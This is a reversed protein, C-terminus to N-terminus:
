AVRKERWGGSATDRGAAEPPGATEFHLMAGPLAVPGM